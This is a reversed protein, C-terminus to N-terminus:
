INNICDLIVSFNDKTVTDHNEVYWNLMDALLQREEISCWTLEEKVQMLYYVAELDIYTLIKQWLESM